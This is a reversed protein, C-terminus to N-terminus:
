QILTSPTLLGIRWAWKGYPLGAKQKQFMGQFLFQLRAPDVTMTQDVGDRLLEGHSVNDTWPEVGAAPRVNKASAFSREFTDALPSWPGDLRSAVYAKYYRQGNEEIVTLYQDRGKLKYTHSAEFIKDRLALECHGLGNPFDSLPTWLRWMRGDNSTYFLYARQDDCIIWFDIGGVERPDDPGGDLMPKAKTWSNPDDITTTTSYAVWMKKLNPMGVQYVLYWKQHPEFYFVQPACFYKSDSVTLLTRKSTQAEQWDEFCCYEIASRDPLKVTMFVHWRGGHFVVTPDKQAHSPERDRPEPSILPPGYQWADPLQLSEAAAGDAVVNIGLARQRDPSGPSPPAVPVSTEKASSQKAKRQQKQKKKQQPQARPRQITVKGNNEASEGPTSRGREVYSTLLATLEKVIEPHKAELNVAEAVDTDLDYLQVDPLEGRQNSGPRPKSWGGSDPCLALKWNGRRISFSGNISHHVIAERVPKDVKGLLHPLVTISDEAGRSPLPKGVLDACTAFLDVLCIPSRCVTGAEVNGKWRAIYPVRHGGDYIDAKHGRYIDSSYHKAPDTPEGDGMRFRIMDHPDGGKAAPSCGNDASVIILTSEAIGADDVAKIVQGISWDTEMVFDGYPGLKSKGQWDKSPSIPTHPSNLALYVFFPEPERAHQRIYETTKRTLTPLVDVDEFDAHAPGPRHFAKITTCEGVFRNNEIWIYPPMDLSASIGWFYDFGISNPGQRIEGKWDVNCKSALENAQTATSSAPKGDTTPFRMGLHWKGFMATRYGQRKLFAPVTDRDPEILPESYGFLVGNKLRSRWNYRGTLLGYRTPTCVSSSSHADTFRMGDRALQDMNPTELKCRDGGYAKVDGLGWDDALIFVVNPREAAQGSACSLAAGFAASILLLHRFM